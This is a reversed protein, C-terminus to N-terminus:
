LFFHSDKYELVKCNVSFEGGWGVMVKTSLCFCRSFPLVGHVASTASPEQFAPWLLRVLNLFKM